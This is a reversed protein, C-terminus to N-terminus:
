RIVKAPNGVVAQGVLFSKTVVAGAGVVLNQPIVVGKLIIARTGIWAGDKLVVKQNKAGDLSKQSSMLISGTVPDRAHDPGSICAVYPGLIARYIEVDGSIDCGRALWAQSGIFIQGNLFCNEGLTTGSGIEIGSSYIRVGDRIEVNDGINIAGKRADLLVGRGIFCNRGISINRGGSISVGSLVKSGFGLKSVQGRLM